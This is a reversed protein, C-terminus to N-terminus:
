YTSHIRTLADLSGRGPCPSQTSRGVRFTNRGCGGTPRVNVERPLDIGKGYKQAFLACPPLQLRPSAPTGVGRQARVCVCVSPLGPPPDIPSRQRPRRGSRDGVQSLSFAGALAGKADCGASSKGGRGGTRKESSILGVPVGPARLGVCIVILLYNFAVVSRQNVFTRWLAYSFLSLSLYPSGLQVRVM